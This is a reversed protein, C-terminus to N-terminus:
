ASRGVQRALWEIWLVGCAALVAGGVLCAWGLPGALLFGIPDGGLLYGLGIGCLPLVAMVRGTARPGALESAVTREVSQDGRLATAVQDLLDAMPAGTRTGVQWARALDRLGRCGPRLAQGLLAAVVDGGNRQVRSAVALVPADEAALALAEAPIRGVRVQNAIVSCCGAVEARVAHEARTRRGLGVLRLAAGVSIVGTLGVAAAAPGALLGLLVVGALSGAALALHRVVDRAWWASHDPSPVLRRRVPDAPTLWLWAALGACVLAVATV